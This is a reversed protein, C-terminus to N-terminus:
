SPFYMRQMKLGRIGRNKGERDTYRQKERVRGCRRMVERNGKCSERRARVCRNGVTLASRLDWDRTEQGWSPFHRVVGASWGARVGEKRSKKVRRLYRRCTLQVPAVSRDVVILARASRVVEAAAGMRAHSHRPAAPGQLIRYSARITTDSPAGLGHVTVRDGPLYM